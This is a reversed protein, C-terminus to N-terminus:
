TYPPCTATLSASVHMVTAADEFIRGLRHVPANAMQCVLRDESPRRSQVSKGTWPWSSIPRPHSDNLINGPVWPEKILCAISYKSRSNSHFMDAWSVRLPITRRARKCQGTCLRRANNHQVATKVHPFAGSRTWLSCRESLKWHFRPYKKKKTMYYLHVLNFLNVVSWKSSSLDVM